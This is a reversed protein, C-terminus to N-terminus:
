DHSDIEQGLRQLETMAADVAEAGPSYAIFYGHRRMVRRMQDAEAMYGGYRGLRDEADPDSKCMDFEDLRGEISAHARALAETKHDTM